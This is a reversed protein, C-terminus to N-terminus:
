LSSFMGDGYINPNSVNSKIGLVKKLVAKLFCNRFM